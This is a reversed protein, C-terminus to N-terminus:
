FWDDELKFYYLINYSTRNRNYVVLLYNRHEKRKKISNIEILGRGSTTNPRIDNYKESYELSIIEYEEPQNQLNQLKQQLEGSNTPPKISELGNILVKKRITDIGAWVGNGM